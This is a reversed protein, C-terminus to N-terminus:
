PRQQLCDILPQLESEYNHWQGAGTKYLGRRVQDSSATRIVRKTNQFNSCASEYDLGVFELLRKLEPEFNDILSEYQLDYIKGPALAHWHAMLDTYLHYYQGLEELKYGYAHNTMPFHHKYLSLCTDIPDRQCHIIKANPFCELIVGIFRFNQPMKDCVFPKGQSQASISKLYFDRLRTNAKNNQSKWIFVGESDLLRSELFNLEGAGTVKSHSALIQEILSTSSRPMGLIFVPCIDNKSTKVKNSSAQGLPSATKIQEFLKLDQDIHYNLGARWCQNGQEFFQFAQPYNHHDEYAKGLAFSLETYQKRPLKKNKLLHEVTTLEPAPASYDKLMLLGSLAETAEPALEFAKEFNQIALAKNGIARYAWAINNYPDALLPKALIAQKFAKIANDYQSLEIFSSGLINLAEASHPSLKCAHLMTKKANSHEGCVHQLAGLMYVYEFNNWGSRQTAALVNKADSSQGHQHLIRALQLAAPANHPDHSLIAQLLQAAQQFHREKQLTMAQLYAKPISFASNAM